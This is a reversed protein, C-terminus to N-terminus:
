AAWAEVGSAAYMIPDDNAAVQAAQGFLRSREAPAYQVFHDSCDPHVSTCVLTEGESRIEFFVGALQDAVHSGDLYAAPVSGASTRLQSM